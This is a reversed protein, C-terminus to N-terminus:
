GCPDLNGLLDSTYIVRISSTKEGADMGGTLLGMVGALGICLLVRILRSM